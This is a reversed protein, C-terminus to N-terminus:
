GKVFVIVEIEVFVDKFLRVVEVCLCVLKYDGFYDGYVENLVVFDNM